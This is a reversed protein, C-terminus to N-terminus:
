DPVPIITIGGYESDPQEQFRYALVVTGDRSFSPQAHGWNGSTIQQLQSGDPKIRWLQGTLAPGARNSAFIVWQGDPSWRPWGDFAPHAALLRAASGNSQALYLESNSEIATLDWELGPTKDVKRYLVQSGDPSLSGYTCVSQCNTHKVPNSGDTKISWIDHWRKGWSAEPDPTDRDSNFVIRSGDATWHPHGDYGPGFTVQTQGSGDPQMLFLDNNGDELYAAYVIQSGDPSWRPTEAGDGPVHTLQQPATGDVNMIWIQNNGSRNSQFIIRSKDPSLDPYSDKVQSVQVPDAAVAFGSACALTFLLLRKM